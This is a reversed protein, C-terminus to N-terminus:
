GAGTCSNLLPVRLRLERTPFGAPGIRASAGVELIAAGTGTQPLAFGSDARVGLVTLPQRGGGGGPRLRLAGNTLHYSASEFLLLLSGPPLVAGIDVRVILENVRPICSASPSDAFTIAYAQEQGDPRIWLLSDKAANPARAGAYRLLLRGQDLSCVIGLGRFARLRVSDPALASIDLDPRAFRVEQSLVLASLRLADIGALRAATRTARRSEASLLGLTLSVLLGLLALGVLLEVMGFGARRGAPSPSM